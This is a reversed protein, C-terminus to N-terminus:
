LVKVDWKEGVRGNVVDWELKTKNHEIRLEVQNWVTKVSARDEGRELHLEGENGEERDRGGNCGM